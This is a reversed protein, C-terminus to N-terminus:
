RGAEFSYGDKGSEGNILVFPWEWEPFSGLYYVTPKVDAESRHCDLAYLKAAQGGDYASWFLYGSAPELDSSCM